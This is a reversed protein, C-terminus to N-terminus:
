LNGRMAEVFREFEVNDYQSYHEEGLYVPKFEAMAKFKRPDLIYDKDTKMRTQYDGTELIIGEKNFRYGAMVIEIFDETLKDQHQTIYPLLRIDGLIFSSVDAITGDEILKGIDGYVYEIKSTNSINFDIHEYLKDDAQRSYIFIKETFRENSLLVLSKYLPLTECKTYRDDVQRVLDYYARDWDYGKDKAFAYLPNYETTASAVRLANKLDIGKIHTMDILEKFEEYYVNGVLYLVLQDLNILVKDFEILVVEKRFDKM